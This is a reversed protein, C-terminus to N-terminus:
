KKLAKAINFLAGDIFKYFDSGEKLPLKLVDMIGGIFRDIASEFTSFKLVKKVVRREVGDASKIKGSIQKDKYSVFMTDDKPDLVIVLYNRHSHCFEQIDLQKRKRFFKM